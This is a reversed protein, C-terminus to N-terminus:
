KVARGAVIVPCYPDHADYEAQSVEHEALGYLFATAVLTNGYSEVQVAGEGFADSLLRRLAAPTLSWYWSSGWERRDIPTVWPVTVLLVGGPRLARWLTNVAKPMEYVLHLTQTLVICDFSAEPLDHEGAIDGVFDTGAGRYRNFVFARSVASGGYRRTYSSDGIELVDGAIDACHTALFQEVYHRDVPKGRNYGFNDNIPTTRRLQGMRVRGIGSPGALIARLRKRLPRLAPKVKDTLTAAGWRAAALPHTAILGASQRCAAWFRDSGFADRIRYVSQGVYFESWQRTGATWLALAEDEDVPPKYRGLVKLVADLMFPANLSMNAGHRRYEAVIEDAVAVESARSIRLYTDYDEAAKLATDFGKADVLAQRRYLVTAHMGIRNGGLLSGFPDLSIDQLPVLVTEHGEADIFRYAGYAFVAQPKEAFSRLHTEVALPTLRDDADLFLVYDDGAAKLGTNRAASLGQNTQRIFTVGPYGSVVQHPDDTSGDDVVIIHDVPRTQALVSDIAEGLFRAHNFTTIVVAVTPAVVTNQQSAVQM